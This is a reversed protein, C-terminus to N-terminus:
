NTPSSLAPIWVITLNPAAEVPQREGVYPFDLDWEGNKPANTFSRFAVILKM